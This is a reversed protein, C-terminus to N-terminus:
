RVVVVTSHAGEVVERSVSGFVSRIGTLGRSGVVVVSAVSSLAVLSHAPGNDPLHRVM